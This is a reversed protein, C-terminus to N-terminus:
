PPTGAATGFFEALVDESGLLDLAAFLLIRAAQNEDMGDYRITMDAPDIHVRVTIEGDAKWDTLNVVLNKLLKFRDKASVAGGRRGARASERMERWDAWLGCSCFWTCSWITCGYSHPRYLNPM